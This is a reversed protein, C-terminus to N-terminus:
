ISSKIVIQLFNAFSKLFDNISLKICIHLIQNAFNGFHKSTVTQWIQLFCTCQLYTHRPKAGGGWPGGPATLVASTRTRVRPYRPPASNRQLDRGKGPHPLDRQETQAKRRWPLWSMLLVCMWIKVSLVREQQQQQRNRKLKKEYKLSHLDSSLLVLRGVNKIISNPTFSVVICWIGAASSLIMSSTWFVILALLPQKVVENPNKECVTLSNLLRSHVLLFPRKSIFKKPSGVNPIKELCPKRFIGM